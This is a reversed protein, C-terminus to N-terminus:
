PEKSSGNNLVKARLVAYGLADQLENSLLLKQTPTLADVDFHKYKKYCESQIFIGMHHADAVKLFVEWELAIQDIDSTTINTFNRPYKLRM